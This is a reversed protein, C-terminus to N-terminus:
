DICIWTTAIYKDGSLVTKGRHLHTWFPPFLILMGQEPKVSLQQFYFETEGGSDPPPNLYWIAVLQRKTFEGPGSDVHWHYYEGAQTKQINYGIDRIRNVKFFPHLEALMSVGESLSSELIQDVDTWDPRGSVRLDTSKKISEELESNQGLRGSYQLDPNQEFKEIIQDCAAVPIAGRLAGYYWAMGM